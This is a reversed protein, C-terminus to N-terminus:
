HVPRVVPTSRRVMDFLTKTTDLLDTYSQSAKIGGQGAIMFHVTGAATLDLSSYAAALVRQFFLPLCTTAVPAQIERRPWAGNAELFLNRYVSFAEEVDKIFVRNLRSVAEESAASM